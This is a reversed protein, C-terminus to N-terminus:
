HKKPALVMTVQRGELKPRQEVAGYEALDQELRDLLAAALDRHAMERGRFRLTIKAKDGESLFRVLNRLKVQYDNEETGPRFKVEKVEIQKQNKRAEAAKKSQQYKFKGYDMIKCVPPVAGPSIEVLDMEAEQALILAQRLPVVGVQNGEGDILRVERANIEQNIRPEDKGRTPKVSSM